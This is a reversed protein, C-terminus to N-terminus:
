PRLSLPTKTRTASSTSIMTCLCPWTPFYHVCMHDVLLGSPMSPLNPGVTVMSGLHRLLLSTSRQSLHGCIGCRLGLRRVLSKYGMLHDFTGGSLGALIVPHHWLFPVEATDQIFTDCQNGAIHPKLANLTQFSTDCHSCRLEGPVQDHLPQFTQQVTTHPHQLSLHQHLGAATAFQCGCTTRQYQAQTRHDDLTAPDPAQPHDHRYKRDGLALGLQKMVACTHTKSKFDKKCHECPSSVRARSMPCFKISTPRPKRINGGM